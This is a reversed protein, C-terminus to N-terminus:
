WHFSYGGWTLVVHFALKLGGTGRETRGDPNDAIRVQAKKRGRNADDYTVRASTETLQGNSEAYLKLQDNVKTLYLNYKGPALEFDARPLETELVGIVVGKAVDAEAPESEVPTFTVRKGAREAEGANPKDLKADRAKRGVEAPDPGQGLTAAPPGFLCILALPVLARKM